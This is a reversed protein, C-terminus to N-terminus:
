RLSRWEGIWGKAAKGNGNGDKQEQEGDRNGSRCVEVGLTVAGAGAVATGTGIGRTRTKTKTWCLGCSGVDIHCNAYASIYGGHRIPLSVEMCLLSPSIVEKRGELPAYQM